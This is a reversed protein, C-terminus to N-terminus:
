SEYHNSKMVNVFGMLVRAGERGADVRGAGCWMVM